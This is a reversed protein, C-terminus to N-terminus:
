KLELHQKINDKFKEVHTTHPRLTGPPPGGAGAVGGHIYGSELRRRPSQVSGGVGSPLAM